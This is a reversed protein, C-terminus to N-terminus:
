ETYIETTATDNFFFIYVSALMVVGVWVWMRSGDERRREDGDICAHLVVM